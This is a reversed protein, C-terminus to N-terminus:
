ILDNKRYNMRWSSTKIIKQKSIINITIGESLGAQYISLSPLHVSYRANLYVLRTFVGFAQVSNVIGELWKRLVLRTTSRAHMISVRKCFEENSMLIGTKTKEIINPIPNEM